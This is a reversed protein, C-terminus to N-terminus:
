NTLNRITFNRDCSFPPCVQKFANDAPDNPVLVLSGAWSVEGGKANAYHGAWQEPM